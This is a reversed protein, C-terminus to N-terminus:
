LFIDAWDRGAAVGGVWFGGRIMRGRGGERGRAAWDEPVWWLPEEGCSGGKAALSASAGIHVGMKQSGGAEARLGGARRGGDAELALRSEWVEGSEGEPVGLGVDRREMEGSGAGRDGTGGGLGEPDGRVGRGRTGSAGTGAWSPEDEAGPVTRLSAPLNSHPVSPLTWASSARSGPGGPATSTFPSLSVGWATRVPLPGWSFPM